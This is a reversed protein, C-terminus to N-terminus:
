LTIVKAGYGGMHSPADAFSVVSPHEKLYNNVAYALKGTGIGHYVLVEDWGQLLADSLFVDLKELAEESRLGHLDLKLGGSRAQPKNVVVKKAKAKPVQSRTLENLKVKMRMGSEFEVMATKEDMSDIVGINTLYKVRDNVALAEEKRVSKLTKNPLNDHAKNMHRHTDKLQHAKAALKAEGIAKSYARSLDGKTGQVERHLSDREDEIIHELKSIHELKEDISAHKAKLSRELESSKEILESLKEQDQGYENITIFGM